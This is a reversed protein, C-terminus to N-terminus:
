GGCIRIGINLKRYNEVDSIRKKGLIIGGTDVYIGKKNDNKKIYVKLFGVTM